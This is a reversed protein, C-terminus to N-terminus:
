REGLEGAARMRAGLKEIARAYIKKAAEHAVGIAESVERGRLGLFLRLEIVKRERDTLTRMLDHLREVEERSEAARSPSAGSPAARDRLIRTGAKRGAPRKAADLWRAKDRITCEIISELWAAFSGAGRNEFRPLRRYARGFVSQAIDAPDHVQRLRQGLRVEVIKLVRPYVSRFLEEAAGRDGQKASAVLATTSQSAEMSLADM